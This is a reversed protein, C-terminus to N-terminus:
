PANILRLMLDASADSSAVHPDRGRGAVKAALLGHDARQWHSDTSDGPIGETLGVSLKM